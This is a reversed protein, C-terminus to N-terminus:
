GLGLTPPAPPPESCTGHGWSHQKVQEQGMNRQWVNGPDKQSKDWCLGAGARGEVRIGAPSSSDPGNSGERDEPVAWPWNCPPISTGQAVWEWIAKPLGRAGRSAWAMSSGQGGAARLGDPSHCAPQARHLSVAASAAGWHVGGWTRIARWPSGGDRCSSPCVSSPPLQPQYKGQAVPISSQCRPQATCLSRGWWGLTCLPEPSAGAAAARPAAGGQWPICMPLDAPCERAAPSPFPGAPLLM